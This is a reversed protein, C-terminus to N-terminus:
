SVGGERFKLNVTKIKTQEFYKAKYKESQM